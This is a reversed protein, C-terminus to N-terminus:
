RRDLQMHQISHLACLPTKPSVITPTCFFKTIENKVVNKEKVLSKTNQDVFYKPFSYLLSVSPWIIYKTVNLMWCYKQAQPQLKISSKLKYMRISLSLVNWLKKHWFERPNRYSFYVLLRVSYGQTAGGSDKICYLGFFCSVWLM